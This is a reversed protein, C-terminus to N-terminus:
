LPIIKVAAKKLKKVAKKSIPIKIILPKKLEGNGVIKVPKNKIEDKAIKYKILTEVTVETNEPLSNLDKLKILYAKEKISKNKGKGRLLPFKKIIKNQGGEFTIPIAERAAQHRTTGRSSKAGKGSSTGRGLRKKRKDIIKPLSSLTTM